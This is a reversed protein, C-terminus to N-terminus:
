MDEIKKEDFAEEPIKYSFGAKLPVSNKWYFGTNKLDNDGLPELYFVQNNDDYNLVRFIKGIICTKGINFLREHNAKAFDDFQDLKLITIVDGKKPHTLCSDITNLTSM